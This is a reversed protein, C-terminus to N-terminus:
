KIDIEDSCRLHDDINMTAEEKFSFYKRTALAARKAHTLEVFDHQLGLRVSVAIAEVLASAVRVHPYQLGMVVSAM